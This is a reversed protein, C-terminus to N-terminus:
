IYLHTKNYMKIKNELETHKYKEFGIYTNKNYKIQTYLVSRANPYSFTQQTKLTKIIKTPGNESNM